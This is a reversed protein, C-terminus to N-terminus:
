FGAYSENGNLNIYDIRYYKAVINLLWNKSLNRSPFSDVSNAHIDFIFKYMEISEEM